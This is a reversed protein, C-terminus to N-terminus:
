SSDKEKKTNKCAQSPQPKKNNEKSTPIPINKPLKGFTLFTGVYLEDWYAYNTKMDDTCYLDTFAGHSDPVKEAEAFIKFFMLKQADEPFLWKAQRVNDWQGLTRDFPSDSEEYMSDIWVLLSGAPAAGYVTEERAERKPHQMLNYFRIAPKLDEESTNEGITQIVRRQIYPIVTTHFHRISAASALYVINDYGLDFSDVLENAMISGMSHAILNVKITEHLKKETFVPSKDCLVEQLKHAFNSFVGSPEHHLNENIRSCVPDHREVIDNNPKGRRYYNREEQYDRDLAFSAFNTRKYNNWTTEGISDVLPTTVIRLPALVTPIIAGAINKKLEANGEIYINNSANIQKWPVSPRKGCQDDLLLKSLYTSECNRLSMHHSTPLGLVEGKQGLLNLGQSVWVAPARALAEALDSIIYLPFQFKKGQELKRYREDSEQQNDIKPTDIRKGERVNLIQDLYSPIVGAEWNLFIPFICDKIILPTDEKVRKLSEAAGNLGGHFFLMLTFQENREGCDTPFVSNSDPDKEPHPYAAIQKKLYDLIENIRCIELDERHEEEGPFIKDCSYADKGSQFERKFIYSNFSGMENASLVHKGWPITKSPDDGANIEQLGIRNKEFPSNLKSTCASFFFVPILFFYITLMRVVVAPNFRTPSSLLFKRLFKSILEPRPFKLGATVYRTAKPHPFEFNAFLNHSRFHKRSM